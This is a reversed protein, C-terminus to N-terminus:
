ERDRGLELIAKSLDDLLLLALGFTLPVDIREHGDRVTLLAADRNTTIRASPHNM